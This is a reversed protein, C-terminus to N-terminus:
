FGTRALSVGRLLDLDLPLPPNFAKFLINSDESSSVSCSGSTRTELGFFAACFFFFFFEASLFLFLCSESESSVPDTLDHRFGFFDFFASEFVMWAEPLLVLLGDKGGVAGFGTAAM